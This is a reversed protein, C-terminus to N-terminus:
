ITEQKGILGLLYLLIIVLLVTLSVEVVVLFYFFFKFLELTYDKNFFFVDNIIFYQLLFDRNNLDV